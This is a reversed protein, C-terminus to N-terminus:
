AFFVAPLQESNRWQDDGQAEIKAVTFFFFTIHM